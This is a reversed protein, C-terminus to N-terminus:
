EKTFVVTTGPSISWKLTTADQVLFTQPDGEGDLDTAIVTKTKDEQLVTYHDTRTDKSTTVTITDGKVDLRMRAAYANTSDVVDARVGESRVGRWHGALNTSGKSCGALPIAVATALAAVKMCLSPRGARAVPLDIRALLDTGTTSASSPPLTDV